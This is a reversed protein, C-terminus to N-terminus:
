PFWFGALMNETFVSSGPFIAAVHHNLNYYVYALNLPLYQMLTKRVNSFNINHNYSQESRFGPSYLECYQKFGQFFTPECWIKQLSALLCETYYSFYFIKQSFM